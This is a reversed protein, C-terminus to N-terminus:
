LPIAPYRISKPKPPNMPYPFPTDQKSTSSSSFIYSPHRLFCLRQPSGCPTTAIEVPSGNLVTQILADGVQSKTLQTPSAANQLIM